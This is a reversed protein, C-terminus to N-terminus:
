AVTVREGAAAARNYRATVLDDIRGQDVREVWSAYARDHREKLKEMAKRAQMAAILEQRKAEVRAAVEAVVADQEVVARAILDLYLFGQEIIAVDTKSASQFHVVGEMARTADDRLAQLRERASQEEAVIVSLELQLADEVNERYNLVPQLRFRRDM